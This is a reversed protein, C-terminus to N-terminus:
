TVTILSSAITELLNGTAQADAFVAQQLWERLPRLWGVEAHDLANTLFALVLFGLVIGLPIAMFEALVRRLQARTEAVGHHSPM